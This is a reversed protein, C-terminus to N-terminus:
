KHLMGFGSLVNSMHSSYAQHLEKVKALSDSLAANASDSAKKADDAAQKKANVAAVAAELGRTIEALTM